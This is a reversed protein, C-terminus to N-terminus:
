PVRIPLLCECENAKDINKCIDNSEDDDNDNHENCARLAIAIFSLIVQIGQPTDDSLLILFGAGSCTFLIFLILIMSQVYNNMSKDTVFSSLSANNNNILLLTPTSILISLGLSCISNYCIFLLLLDNNNNNNQQPIICSGIFGIVSCLCLLAPVNCNFANHMIYFSIPICIIFYYIHNQVDSLLKSFCLWSLQFGLICLLIETQYCHYFNNNPCCNTNNLHGDEQPNDYNSDKNTHIVLHSLENNNSDNMITNNNHNNNTSQFINNNNHIKKTNKNHINNFINNSIMITNIIIQM